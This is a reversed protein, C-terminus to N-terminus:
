ENSSKLKKQLNASFLFWFHFFKYLNGFLLDYHSENSNAIEKKLPNKIYATCDGPPRSLGSSLAQSYRDSRQKKVGDPIIRLKYGMM